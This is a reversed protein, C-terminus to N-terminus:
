VSELRQEFRQFFRAVDLGDVLAHHVEVSVPMSWRGNQESYKGFVIRPISDDGGNTPNSIATFRVWPFTSHYVLDDRGSAAVVLTTCARAAQAEIHAQAQFTAFNEAMPFLAFAFTEDPRLVTTSIDLRDHIWVKDGRIRLRFAETENVAALAM